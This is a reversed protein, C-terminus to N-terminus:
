EPVRGRLLAEVKDVFESTPQDGQEIRKPVAGIAYLVTTHHRTFIRAIQPLSLDCHRAIFYMAVQRPYAVPRSQGRGCLAVAQIQAVSCVAQVVQTPTVALDSGLAYLRQRMRSKGPRQWFPQPLLTLRAPVRFLDAPPTVRAPARGQIRRRLTKNQSAFYERRRQAEEFIGLENEKMM